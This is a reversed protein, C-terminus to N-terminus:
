FGDSGSDRDPFTATRGASRDWLMVQGGFFEYKVTCFQNLFAVMDPNFARMKVEDVLIWIREHRHMLKQIQEIKSVLRGGAWREMIGNQRMYIEDFHVASVLYYDVYGFLIAAPMPHVTMIKDGPRMHHGVYELGAPHEMFRQRSYSDAVKQVELNAAFCAVLVAAMAARWGARSFAGAAASLAPLFRESASRVYADGTVVAIVVFPPYIGFCYRSAIQLMIVTLTAVTVGVVLYLMYMAKDPHWLWYVIGTFFLFSYLVNAGNIMWYYTTTFGSMNAFNLQMISASTTGVGIHPTLCVVTFTYVDLLVVTMMTGFGIWVNLDKRWNFPRYFLFFAITLAPFSAAYVEQSMGGLASCAFFLNQYRKGQRWVFGKLFLHVGVTGFFQMQQYFRVIGAYSMCWPDVAILLAAILGLYRRRSVDRALFYVAPIVLVGPVLSFSRASALNDGFLWLWGALIYHYFPSRTYLVGSVALPSGGKLIGRAADWSVNEDAQLQQYDIHYMRLGLGLVTLACVLAAPGYRYLLRGAWGPEPAPQPTRCTLLVTVLLLAPGSALWLWMMSPDLFWLSTESEVFRMRMVEEFLIGFLMPVLLWCALRFREAAPATFRAALLWSLVRATVALLLALALALLSLTALWWRGRANPIRLSMHTPQHSVGHLAVPQWDGEGSRWGPAAATTYSWAPGTALPQDGLRGDVALWPVQPSPNPAADKHLRFSIQGPGSQVYQTLDIMTLAETNGSGSGAFSPGVFVEYNWSSRVRVWCSRGPPGPPVPVRFIAEGSAVPAKVAPAVFPETWIRPDLAAFVPKRPTPWSRAWPWAQDDFQTEYWQFGRLATSDTSARWETPEASIPVSEVGRSVGGRVAMGLGGPHDSQLYVAIVNRGPALADRINFFHLVRWDENARTKLSPGRAMPVVQGRTISQGPDNLRNQFAIGSDTLHNNKGVLNGNVYLQYDEAAIGIWAHEPLFPVRLVHRFYGRESPEPTSIWREPPLRVIPQTVPLLWHGVHVAYLLGGALFFLLYGWGRRV